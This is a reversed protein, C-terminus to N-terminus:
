VVNVFHEMLESPSFIDKNKSWPHYAKTWGRGHYWIVIKEKVFRHKASKSNLRNFVDFAEKLTKCCRPSNYRQWLYSNAMVQPSTFFIAIDSFRWYRQQAM